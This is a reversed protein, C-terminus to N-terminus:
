SEEKKGKNREPSVHNASVITVCEGPQLGAALWGKVLKYVIERSTRASLYRAPDKGDIYLAKANDYDDTKDFAFSVIDTLPVELTTSSSWEHNSKNTDKPSTM